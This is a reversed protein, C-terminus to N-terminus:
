ITRESAKDRVPLTGLYIRSRYPRRDSYIRLTRFLLGKTVLCGTTANGNFPVCIHKTFDCGSSNHFHQFNISLFCDQLHKDQTVARQIQLIIKNPVTRHLKRGLYASIVAHLCNRDM